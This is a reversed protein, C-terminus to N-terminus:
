HGRELTRLVEQLEGKAVFSWSGGLTAIASNVEANHWEHTVARFRFAEAAAQQRERDSLDDLYALAANLVSGYEPILDQHLYGRAFESLRPFDAADIKHPKSRDITV